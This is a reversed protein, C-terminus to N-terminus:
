LGVWTTTSTCKFPQGSPGNLCLDGTAGTLNGNPTTGDSVWLSIGKFKHVRYFNTSVVTGGGNTESTGESHLSWGVNDTTFRTSRFNNVGPTLTAGKSIIGDEGKDQHPKPVDVRGLEIPDKHDTEFNVKAM